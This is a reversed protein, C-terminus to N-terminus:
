SFEETSVFECTNFLHLVSFQLAYFTYATSSNQSVGNHVQRRRKAANSFLVFPSFKSGSDVSDTQPTLDDAQNKSLSLPLPTRSPNKVQIL